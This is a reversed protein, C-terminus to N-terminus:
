IYLLNVGEPAVKDQPYYFDMYMPNTCIIKLLHFSEELPGQKVGHVAIYGKESLIGFLTEMAPVFSEKHELTGETYVLQAANIVGKRNILIYPRYACVALVSGEDNLITTWTVPDKNLFKWEEESPKAVRLSRKILVDFDSPTTARYRHTISTKYIYAAVPGYDKVGKIKPVVLQYGKAAAKKADLPRYWEKLGISHKTYPKILYHYGHFISKSIAYNHTEEILRKAIKVERHDRKVCLHTSLITKFSKTETHKSELNITYPVSLIFGVTREVPSATIARFIYGQCLEGLKPDLTVINSTKVDSSHTSVLSVDGPSIIDSRIIKTETM